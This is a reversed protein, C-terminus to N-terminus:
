CTPASAWTGSCGSDAGGRTSGAPGIRRFAPAASASVDIKYGGPVELQRAKADFDIDRKAAEPDLSQYFEELRVRFAEDTTRRLQLLVAYGLLRNFGHPDNLFSPLHWRLLTRAILKKV